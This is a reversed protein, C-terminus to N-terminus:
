GDTPQVNFNKEGKVLVEPPRGDIMLDDGEYFTFDSSWYQAGHEDHEKMAKAIRKQFSRYSGYGCDIRVKCKPCSVFTDCGM